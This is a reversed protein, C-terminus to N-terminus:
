NRFVEVIAIGATGGVGSVIASYAGPQLTVLIAAENADSPAFGSAQIQTANADQQWNDNYAIQTGGSFLQLQPNALVGQVGFQGLSPGRARIVVTQPGDGQIVFGAIMVNDGTQARGRTSINALPVLIADVEFVEIIAVGTTGGVGSVIASYAGPNVTMMVAAENADAPAFGSAALASANAADGWNDNAAIQTQGSFLQLQPNALVGPVGFAALSPGRARVVVTKPGSGGIVFGGIMVDDGSLVQMRTSINTLRGLNAATSVQIALASANNFSLPDTEAAAVSAFNTAGGAATPQAVIQVQVSAGNALPGIACTVTGANHTCGASASVFTSAAPLTDTLVVGTAAAPGNNAVTLSYTVPQGVSAAAPPTSTHSAIALDAQPGGSLNFTATVSRSQTMTLVCAGTGTCAGSWGAFISGAAPSRGLTVVTGPDFGVTCSTGCDVGIGEPSSAVVGSGSGAHTVTLAISSKFNATVTRAASMTVSCAGSVTFAGCL